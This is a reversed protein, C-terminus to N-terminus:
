VYKYEWWGRFEICNEEEFYNLEGSTYGQERM